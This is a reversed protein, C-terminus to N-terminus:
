EIEELKVKNSNSIPNPKLSSGIEALARFAEFVAM